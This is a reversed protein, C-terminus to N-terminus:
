HTMLVTFLTNFEDVAAAILEACAQLHEGEIDLEVVVNGCRRATQKAAETHTWACADVFWEQRKSVIVLCVKSVLLDKREERSTAEVSTFSQAADMLHKTARLERQRELISVSTFQALGLEARHEALLIGVDTEAVGAPLAFKEDGTLGAIYHAAAELGGLIPHSLPRMLPMPDLLFVTSAVHGRVQAALAVQQSLLGGFSAGILAFSAHSCGSAGQELISAAWGDCIEVLSLIDEASGPHQLGPHM